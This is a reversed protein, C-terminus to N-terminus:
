KPRHHQRIPNSPRSINNINSGLDLCDHFHTTTLRPTSVGSEGSGFAQIKTAAPPISRWTKIALLILCIDLLADYDLVFIAACDPCLWEPRIQCVRRSVHFVPFGQNTDILQPSELRHLLRGVKSINIVQGRTGPFSMGSLSMELFRAPLYSRCLPFRQLPWRSCM